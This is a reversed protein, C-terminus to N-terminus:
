LRQKHIPADDVNILEWNSYSVVVDSQVYEKLFDAGNFFPVVISVLKPENM